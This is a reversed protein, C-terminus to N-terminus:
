MELCLGVPYDMSSFSFSEQLYSLVPLSIWVSQDKKSFYGCLSSVIGSLLVIYVLPIRNDGKSVNNVNAYMFSETNPIDQTDITQNMASQKLSTQHEVEQNVIDQKKVSQNQNSDVTNSEIKNEKM